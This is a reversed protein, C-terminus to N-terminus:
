SQVVYIPEEGFQRDVIYSNRSDDWYAKATPDIDVLQLVLAYAVSQTIVGGVSIVTKLRLERPKSKAVKKSM